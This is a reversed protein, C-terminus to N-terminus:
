CATKMPRRSALFLGAFRAMTVDLIRQALRGPWRRRQRCHADQVTAHIPESPGHIFALAQASGASLSVALAIAAKLSRGEKLASFMARQAPSAEQEALWALLPQPDSNTVMALVM